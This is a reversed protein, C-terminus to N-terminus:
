SHILGFLNHIDPRFLNHFMRAISDEDLGSIQIVEPNDSRRVACVAIVILLTDGVELFVTDVIRVVIIDICQAFPSDYTGATFKEAREFSSLMRSLARIIRTQRNMKRDIIIHQREDTDTVPLHIESCAYLYPLEM